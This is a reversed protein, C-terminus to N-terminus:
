AQQYVYRPAIPVDLTAPRSRSPETRFLLLSVMTLITMTVTIVIWIGITELIGFRSLLIWFYLVALVLALLVEYMTNTKTIGNRILISRLSFVLLNALVQIGIVAPAGLKYQLVTAYLIGTQLFGIITNAIDAM